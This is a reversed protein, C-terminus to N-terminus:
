IWDTDVTCHVDLGVNVKYGDEAISKHDLAIEVFDLDYLLDESVDTVVDFILCQKLWGDLDLCNAILKSLDFNLNSEEKLEFKQFSTTAQSLVDKLM